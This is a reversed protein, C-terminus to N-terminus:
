QGAPMRDAVCGEGIQKLLDSIRARVTAVFRGSDDLRRAEELAWSFRCELGPRPSATPIRSNSFVRDFDAKDQARVIGEAQLAAWESEWQARELQKTDTIREIWYDVYRAPDTAGKVWCLGSTRHGWHFNSRTTWGPMMLLGRVAEPRAYLVRAQFLTDGPYLSLVVSVTSPDLELFAMKVARQAGDAREPLDRWCIGQNPRDPSGVAEGLVADLRRKLRDQHEGARRLTSYPGVHPFHLDVFSLFDELVRREAGAVLERAALDTLAALLQQWAVVRAQKDLHVNAGHTNIEIVQRDHVGESIKNEIVIVLETGYEVVADLVQGRESAHVPAEIHSPDPALLVSIVRVPDESEETVSSLLEGEQTRWSAMPLSELHIASDVLRLWTVHAMPSYRLLVLLARTLQNEHKDPLDEYPAFFNLPSLKM